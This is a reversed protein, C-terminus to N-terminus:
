TIPEFRLKFQTAEIDPTVIRPILDGLDPLLYDRIPRNQAQVPPVALAANGERITVIENNNAVNQNNVPDAM